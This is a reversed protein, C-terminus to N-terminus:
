RRRTAPRWRGCCRTSPSWPRAALRGRGDAAAADARRSDLDADIEELARRQDATLEFPLSEIWREGAGGAGRAAPRAPRQAAAAAADGAGGPLPGAGRLLSAPAGGRGARRRRPLPRRRARRRGGRLRAAGAAGGAAARDRRRGPGAAQWVWERLRQVRLKETAPHVPVLGTTHIGPPPRRGPAAGRLPREAEGLRGRRRRAARARRGPLRAPRAPRAAAAAHRPGAERGALGPQVLDGDGPRVRRRGQGRRDDARAAPDPRLAPAECRSWCRRRRASGCSPSSRGARRPRPLHAPGAAAPRRPDRDRRRRAAAALKPGIGALSQLPAALSAPRPWRLPAECCSSARSQHRAAGSPARRARRRRRAPKRERSPAASAAPESM